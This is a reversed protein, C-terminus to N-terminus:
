KEEKGIEDKKEASSEEKVVLSDDFVIAKYILDHLGVV